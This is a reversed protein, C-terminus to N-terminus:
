LTAAGSDVPTSSVLTWGSTYVKKIPDNDVVTITLPYCITVDGLPSNTYITPAIFNSPNGVTNTAFTTIFGTCTFNSDQLVNTNFTLTSGVIM